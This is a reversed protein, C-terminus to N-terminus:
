ERFSEHRDQSVSWSTQEHALAGAHVTHFINHAGIREAVGARELMIQFLGRARAIGFVIGQEALEARLADLAYAGSVDLM